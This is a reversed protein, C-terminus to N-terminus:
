SASLEFESTSRPDSGRRKCKKRIFMAFTILIFIGAVPLSIQMLWVLDAKTFYGKTPKVYEFTTTNRSSTTLANKTTTTSLSTSTMKSTSAILPKETSLVCDTQVTINLTNYAKLCTCNMPNHKLDISQVKGFRELLSRLDPCRLRNLKFSIEKFDEVSPFVKTLQNLELGACDILDIVCRCGEIPRLLDTTTVKQFLLFVLLLHM